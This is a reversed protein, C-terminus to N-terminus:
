GGAVLKPFLHDSHRLTLQTLLPYRGADTSAHYTLPSADILHRIPALANAPLQALPTQHLAAFDAQLFQDSITSQQNIELRMHPPVDEVDAPLPQRLLAVEICHDALAALAQYLAKPALTIQPYEPPVGEITDTNQQTVLLGFAELPQDVPGVRFKGVFQTGDLSALGLYLFFQNTAV